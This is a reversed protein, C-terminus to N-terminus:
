TLILQNDNSKGAAEEMFVTVSAYRWTKLLLRLYLMTQSVIFLLFVGTKTAPYWGPLTVIIIIGLIIQSILLLVMMSYSSGLRSFTQRFGFGLSNFCGDNVNSAKRARAYDAILFFLPMIIVFIIMGCVPIIFATRESLSESLAVILLPIGILIGAAIIRLLGVILSIILFSWFNGAGSRFFEKSSHDTSDRRLVGFLGGSVFANLLMGAFIVVLFGTTLGSIISRIVPGLDSFVEIDPGNNLRETIMSSGFGSILSGRLPYIYVAVLLFLLFWSILVGNWVRLTRIFGTKLSNFIKM